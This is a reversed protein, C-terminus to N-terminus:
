LRYRLGLTSRFHNVRSVLDFRAAGQIGLRAAFRHEFGIVGYGGVRLESDGEIDLSALDSTLYHLSAGGGALLRDRQSVPHSYLAGVSMALDTVPFTLAQCTFTGPGAEVAVTDVERVHWGSLGATVYVTPVVPVQLELEAMVGFGLHEPKVVGASGGFDVGQAWGAAPLGAAMAMFWVFQRMAAEGVM